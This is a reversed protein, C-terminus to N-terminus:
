APTDVVLLVTSVGTGSAEFSGAPLPEIRGGLSKVRVRLARTKLDNRSRIAASAIAILRGGPALMDLAHNIHEVDQKAEFPPNMLIRDYPMSPRYTCFDDAVPTLGQAELLNRLSVQREVVDLEVEPHLQQITVAIAGDGASPELVRMGAELKAEGLMRDVLPRPTPFYGPISAFALARKKVTIPDDSAIREQGRFSMYERLAARLSPTDVIGLHALRDHTRLGDVLGKLVWPITQKTKRMQAVATRVANVEHPALAAFDDGLRIAAEEIIKRVPGEGIVIARLRERDTRLGRYTAHDVDALEPEQAMWHGVAGEAQRRDAGARFAEIELAEVDAWNAVLPIHQREGAHAAYAIRRLTQALVLQRRARDRINAAMGAKRMTNEQREANIEATAKSEMRDALKLLKTSHKNM